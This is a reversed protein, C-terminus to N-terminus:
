SNRIATVAQSRLVMDAWKRRPRAMDAQKVQRAALSREMVAWKRQRHQVMVAQQLLRSKVAQRLLHVMVAQRRRQEM